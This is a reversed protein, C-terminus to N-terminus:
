CNCRFFKLDDQIQKAEKATYRVGPTGKSPTYEDAYGPRSGDVSPQVLMGGGAMPNRDTFDKYMERDLAQQPRDIKDATTVVEDDFLDMLEIIKKDLDEM